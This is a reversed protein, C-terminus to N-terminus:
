NIKNYSIITKDLILNYGIVKGTDNRVFQGIGGGGLGKAYFTDTTKAYFRVKGGPFSIYIHSDLSIINIIEDDRKYQGAYQRLLSTELKIDPQRFLFELGCGVAYPGESVHGMKKIVMSDIEFGNYNHSKLQTIFKRFDSTDSMAEEYENTCLFLKANLEHNNESFLKEMNFIEDTSSFGWAIYRNFLQPKQFMTYLTFRSGLSGGSLTNNVKDTRYNSNIIKMIENKVISMFQVGGGSKPFENTQTPTFDFQRNADYDGTWKIGVVIIEPALGDYFLDEAVGQVGGIYPFSWQGDLVYLVPFKKTTDNYSGPVYVDLVYDQNNIGSKFKIVETGPIEVKPKQSYATNIGFSFLIIVWKLNRM